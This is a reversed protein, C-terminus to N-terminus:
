RYGAEGLQPPVDEPRARAVLAVAALQSTVELKRLIAKVQTRVTTEAVDRLEAIRRVSLGASLLQLVEAERPTLRGLRRAVEDMRDRRVRWDRVIRQRSGPSMLDAGAMLRVLGSSLDDLSIWTPLLTAGAEVLEGWEVEDHHSVVLVWRLPVTGVLMRAQARRRPDELDGFVVGVHPRLSTVARRLETAPRHAPPWPVLVVDLYRSSLAARVADGVLRQEALLVVRPRREM